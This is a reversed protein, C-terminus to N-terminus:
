SNRWQPLDNIQSPLKFLILVMKLNPIFAIKLNASLMKKIIGKLLFNTSHSKILHLIKLCLTFSM